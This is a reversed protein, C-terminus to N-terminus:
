GVNSVSVYFQPRAEPRSKKCFAALGYLDHKFKFIKGHPIGRDLFLKFMVNGKLFTWVMVPNM